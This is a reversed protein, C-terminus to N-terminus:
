NRSQHLDKNSNEASINVFEFHMGKFKAKTLKCLYGASYSIEPPKKWHEITIPDESVCIPVIFTVTGSGAPM